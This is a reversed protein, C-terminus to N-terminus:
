TSLIGITGLSVGVVIGINRGIGDTANVSNSPLPTTANPITQSATTTISSSLTTTTTPVFNWGNLHVGAMTTASPATSIWMVWGSALGGAITVTECLILSIQQGAPITSM